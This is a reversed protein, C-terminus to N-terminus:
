LSGKVAPEATIKVSFIERGNLLGLTWSIVETEFRKLSPFAAPGLANESFFMRAADKAVELVEDSAFHTYVTIRGGRWDVDSSRAEEMEAFLLGRELGRRPFRNSM